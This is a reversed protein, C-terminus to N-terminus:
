RAKCKDCLVHKFDITKGYRNGGAQYNKFTKAVKTEICLPKHSNIKKYKNVSKQSPFKNSKWTSGTFRFETELQEYFFIKERETFYGLHKRFTEQSFVSPMERIRHQYLQQQFSRTVFKPALVEMTKQRLEFTFIVKVRVRKKVKQEDRLRKKIQGQDQKTELKHLRKHIRNQEKTVWSFSEFKTEEIARTPRKCPVLDFNHRNRQECWPHVSAESDSCRLIWDGDLIGTSRPIIDLSKPPLTININRNRVSPFGGIRNTRYNQLHQENLSFELSDFQQKVFSEDNKRCGNLLLRLLGFCSFM